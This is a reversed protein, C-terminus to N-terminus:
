RCRLRAGGVVRVRFRRHLGPSMTPPTSPKCGLSLAWALAAITFAGHTRM